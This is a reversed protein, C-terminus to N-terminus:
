HPELASAPMLGAECIMLVIVDPCGGWFPRINSWNDGLKTKRYLKVIAMAKRHHGQSSAKWLRQFHLKQPFSTGEWLRQTRPFFGIFVCSKLHSPKASIPITASLINPKTQSVGSFFSDSKGDRGGDQSVYPSVTISRRDVGSAM